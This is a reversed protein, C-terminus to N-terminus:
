SIAAASTLASTDTKAVPESTAIATSAFFSIAARPMEARTTDTGQKSSSSSAGSAARRATIPEAGTFTPTSAAMRWPQSAM